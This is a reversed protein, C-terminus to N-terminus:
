TQQLPKLPHLLCSSHLLGLAPPQYFYHLLGRRRDLAAYIKENERELSPTRKVSPVLCPCEVGYLPTKMRCPAYRRHKPKANVRKAKIVETFLYM